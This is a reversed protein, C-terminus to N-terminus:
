PTSCKQNREAMSEILQPVTFVRKELPDNSKGILLSLSFSKSKMIEDKEGFSIIRKSSTRTQLLGGQGENNAESHVIFIFLLDQKHKNTGGFYQDYELKGMPIEMNQNEGKLKAFLIVNGDSSLSYIAASKWNKTLALLSERDVREDALALSASVFSLTLIFLVFSTKYFSTM